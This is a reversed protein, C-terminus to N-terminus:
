YPSGASLGAGTVGPVPQPISGTNGGKDKEGTKPKPMEQPPPTGPASPPAPTPPAATVYGSGCPDCTPGCGSHKTGWRAKMADLLNTHAPPSGCGCEHSKKGFGGMRSKIRDLLGPKCSDCGGHAYPTVGCNSCGTGSVVVPPATAPAPAPAPAPDAGALAASSLILFATNM